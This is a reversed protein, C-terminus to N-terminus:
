SISDLRKKLAKREDKLGAQRALGVADALMKRAGQANGERYEIAALQDLASVLKRADGAAQLPKLSRQLAPKAVDPKNAQIGALGLYYYLDKLLPHNDQGQLRQLSQQLFPLAETGKNQTLTFFGVHYLDVAMLHEARLQQSIQLARQSLQLAAEFNRTSGEVQALLECASRERALAGVQRCATLVRRLVDRARELKGSALLAEGMALGSELALAGLGTGGAVENAQRFHKIADDFKRNRRDIVGRVIESQALIAPQVIRKGDDGERSGLEIAKDVAELAAEPKGDRLEISAIHTHVEAMRTKNELAEFMTLADRARDRARFLDGRRLDIKSGNLLLWASLDRDEQANAWETAATHVRDAAGVNGSSALHDLLTTFITRRMADTWPVEDFYRLVEHAMAWADPSDHTLALARMGAARNPAGHEAYIRATRSIFGVGRPALFREMFVGVNRALQHGEDTDNQAMIGERWTGRKFRYIWTGMQENFQVEDFLDGMADLLDDISEKDFGGMEAVLNSPFVQGLLAALFAVRGADDKTAHKREGEAPPEEPIELDDEDVTMPVLTALSVDTLEDNLKGQEELIEVLEGVFGPRGGALAAIGAANGELDKSKLYEAVEGESWSQLQLTHLDDARRDYVDRLPAPHASTIDGDLEDHLFVLMRGGERKVEDHLVELFQAVLVSHGVYPSQLDLVIPMKRAIGVLIEILGILPHDQPIKLQMQGTKPDAKSEKLAAVFHQYWQQVRKTQSPLQGNLIMEVKGRKLVDGTIQSVLSGYMRILWQLGNEQDSCSTRWLLPDEAHTRLDRMLAGTLARRGGGFGAQVRVFRVDGDAVADWHANLAALDDPRAVFLSDEAM